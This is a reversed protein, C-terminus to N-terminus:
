EFFASCYIGAFGAQFPPSWWRIQSNQPNALMLHKVGSKKKKRQIVYTHLVINCALVVIIYLYHTSYLLPYKGTSTSSLLQHQKQPHLWLAPDEVKASPDDDSDSDFNPVPPLFSLPRFTPQDFSSSPTEPTSAMSSSPRSSHTSSPTRPRFFTSISTQKSASLQKDIVQSLAERMMPYM